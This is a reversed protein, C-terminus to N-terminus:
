ASYGEERRALSLTTADYMLQILTYISLIAKERLPLPIMSYSMIQFM